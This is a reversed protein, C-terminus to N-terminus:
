PTRGTNIHPPPAVTTVTLRYETEASGSRVSGGESAIATADPQSDSPVLDVVLGCTVHFTHFLFCHFRSGIWAVGIRAPLTVYLRRGELM